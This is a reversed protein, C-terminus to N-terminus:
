FVGEGMLVASPTKAIIYFDLWISWNRVYYTDFRARDQFTTLNRGSIQWLGTMGPLVRTYLYFDRGYVGEQGTMMPRPGVLSMEGRLVNFLQPIEDISWRRLWRGVRTLRPDKALKQYREWEDRLKKDVELHEELRADADPVMTRFKAM